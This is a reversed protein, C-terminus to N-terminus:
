WWYFLIDSQCVVMLAFTYRIVSVSGDICFTHWVSMRKANITTHLDSMSKTNITTHWVSMSKCQHYHTLWIYKKISPLADTMLYVKQLSPLTDTMLCLKQLSPLTDTLYVKQLSPITDMLCDKLSSPQTDTLCAKTTIATHWDSQQIPPEIASCASSVFVLCSFLFSCIM